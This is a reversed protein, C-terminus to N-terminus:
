QRDGAADRFPEQIPCSRVSITLKAENLYLSEELVVGTPRRGHLAAVIRRATEEDCRITELWSTGCCTVNLSLDVGSADSM